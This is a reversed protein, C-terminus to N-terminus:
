EDEYINMQNLKYEKWNCPDGHIGKEYNNNLWNIFDQIKNEEGILDKYKYDRSVKYIYDYESPILPANDGFYYFNQSLLVYRGKIDRKQHDFNVQGNKNSHACDEQIVIGTINDTHYVNDGYMQVLSGNLYPKKCQYREENWYEDFTIKCELKMAFILHDKNGLSVSGLGIIWDGINLKKNNRINGKCTALTLIGHFPNPAFGYDHELKYRFCNM